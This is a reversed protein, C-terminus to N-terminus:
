GARSTVTVGALRRALRSDPRARKRDARVKGEFGGHEVRRNQAFVDTENGAADRVIMYGGATMTLPAKLLGMRDYPYKGNPDFWSPLVYNSVPM